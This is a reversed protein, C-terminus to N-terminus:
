NILLEDDDFGPRDKELLKEYGADPDAGLGGDDSLLRARAAASMGFETALRQINLKERNIIGILPSQIVTGGPTKYLLADDQNKNSKKLEIRERDLRRRAAKLMSVSDCLMALMIQDVSRLIGLAMLKAVLHKWVLRAGPDLWDPCAPAEPATTLDVKALPRRGPNGEAQKIATPKPKRGKMSLEKRENLLLM